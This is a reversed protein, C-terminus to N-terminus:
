IKNKLYYSKRQEKIKEKISEKNNEYWTKQLEKIKEKNNEKYLKNTEKLKEKNEEYYTKSVEKMNDKKEEESVYAKIMNLESGLKEIWYRERAHAQLKNDCPYEELMVMDWNDWGGNERIFKYKKTHYAKKTENNCCRKHESKRENFNTTSGIYNEKIEINNCCLKYIITKSSNIIPM